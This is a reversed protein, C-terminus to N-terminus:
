LKWGSLNVADDGDNKLKVWEEGGDPGPPDPLIASIHVEGDLDGTPDDGGDGPEPPPM